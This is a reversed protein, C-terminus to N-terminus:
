LRGGQGGKDFRMDTLKQEAGGLAPMVLLTHQVDSVDRVFAISRGDPSWVPNYEPAPNSTLRIPDGPGILKVYIDYSGPANNDWAFAIQTGDPSFSPQVEFGPYATLPVARLEDCLRKWKPAVARVLGCCDGYSCGDGHGDMEM